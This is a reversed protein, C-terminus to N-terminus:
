KFKFTYNVSPIIPLLSGVTLTKVRYGSYYMYVPNHRNYANFVDFSWSHEGWRGQKKYHIGLDLRHYAPLRYNNRTPYYDIEGGYASSSNFLSLNPLYKEVPITVPYGSGYVWMASIDWKKSLKCNVFVKFDHRRDYTFPFTAGDSLEPFRRDSWSLTYNISGTIRGHQKEVSLEVGKASGTGQTVKQYWPVFQTTLSAGNKFDATHYLWKNYVEVNVLFTKALEYAFGINIQDSKLPKLQVDNGSPVWLDTPMNLNGTSLLHMYQVMRSYGAKVVVGPIVTCNAALRPEPNIFYSNASIFGSLRLGANLSIMEGLKMEDEMYLNPEGVRVLNNAYVTDSKENIAGDDMSYVDKGPNFTHFSFAAGFRLQHRDSLAYDFDEKVIIDTIGSSYNAFYKRQVSDTVGNTKLIDLSKYENKVFFDYTSYALTTNTFLNNGFTHNWRLSSVLNGWGSTEQRNESFSQFRSIIDVNDNTNQIYDKGKYFSLYIRDNQSFTHTIRANMDYFYYDPFSKDVVGPKKLPETILDFYSRRASILFTTKSSFIPGQLTFKSSVLGLSVEGKLSKNNGDLSRVDIVSSIRGGYRAPFCGKYLEVDKVASVNFASFFGYLHSVNYLPVDDLMFLNEGSGGGRVFIGASGEVGGKIGPQSQISKLLDAEGLAPMSTLMQQPILTMGLPTNVTKDYLSGKIVVEKLDKIPDIVFILATDHTLVFSKIESQYGLYFARLVVGGKMNKFRYFGYSNTSTGMKSISDVVYTGIMREGTKSDEVYGSISYTQSNAVQVLALFLLVIKFKM